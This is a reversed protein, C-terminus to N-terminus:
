GIWTGRGPAPAALTWQPRHRQPPQRHRLHLASPNPQSRPRHHPVPRHRPRLLPQPPLLLRNRRGPVARRIAAPHRRHRHPQHHQRVPRLHLHRHGRRHLQHTPPHLRAPRAPPLDPTGASTIQEVPLGDPGYIYSTSGDTIMCRSPHTSTGPTPPPPAAPPRPRACGTATTPTLPPPRRDPPTYSTLQNAQNYGYSTTRAATTATIRDGRPNYGYTTTTGSTTSHRAPPRRDFTQTTSGLTTPDAANDYGDSTTRRRHAATLPNYTYTQAPASIATGTTTATALEGNKGRTYTFSALTGATTTDTVATVQDDTNLSTTATIATRTPRPPSPQRRQQLRLTTKNSNWDTVSTLVSTPTTATPHRDQRQPLDHHHPQRRPQLRLQRGPRRRQHSHHAPRRPRLHLQDTGTADTMSTRHGAPDYGYSIGHTVGDSYSVSTLRNTPTMPAPPSWGTPAPPPSWTATATTPSTTARGCAPRHATVRGLPDYIYSTTNGAADTYSTQQQDPNYAYTRTLTDPRTVSTLDDADNYAYSTVNGEPDTVTAANGDRRLHLQHRPRAPRHRLHPPRCQRLRLQHDQLQLPSLPAASRRRRLRLQHHLRAPRYQQDPRRTTTPTPPSRGPPTPAAPSSARPTGRTHPSEGPRTPSTPRTTTSDYTYSTVHNDPDTVTDTQGDPYYTYSTAKGAPDTSSTLLGTTNYANTATGGRGDTATLVENMSNYTWSQTTYLPAPATRTLMDGAANYTMSTVNGDPDTVQTLELNNDYGYYTTGGDPDTQQLLVNANYVDTWIGGDPDTTTATQTAANWAFTTTKGDGNVQSTIRGTSSSYTNTLVLHGDPDTITTLQGASNYGYRTVGGGLGAVSTLLGSTYSYGVTTTNPMTLSALLGSANYALTVKRGSADKVSTVQSGTYTLTLGTGSRDTEATLQGATNFTYHTGGPAVVQYGGSVAALTAYVGPGGTYSGNANKTFQTQQGDGTTFTATGSGFSLSAQYPDTWGPGLPGSATDLSTYARTFAFAVGPGQLSADTVTDSYAGTATNVPDGRFDEPQAAAGPVCPACGYTQAVPVGPPFQAPGPPLMGMANADVDPYWVTGDPAWGIQTGSGFNEGVTPAFSMLGSTTVQGIAGVVVFVLGGTSHDVAISESEYAEGTPIQYLTYSGSTTMAGIAGSDGFWLRGDPGTTIEELTSNSPMQFETLAGGTTIRDITNQSGNVFWMAGDPGATIGELAQVNSAVQYETVAGGPTVYGVSSGNAAITTFWVNGDPGLTIGEVIAAYSPGNLPFSTVSGSPTIRGIDNGEGAFWLSGDAEATMWGSAIVGSVLPYETFSGSETVRGIQEARTETFWAADDRTVAM